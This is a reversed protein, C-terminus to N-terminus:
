TILEDFLQPPPQALRYPSVEDAVHRDSSEQRAAKVGTGNNREHGQLAALPECREGDAEALGVEVLQRVCANDGLTETCVMALQDDLGLAGISQCGDQRLEILWEAVCGCERRVEHRHKGRPLDLDHQRPVAPVFQEGTIVSINNILAAPLEPPQTLAGDCSDNAPQTIRQRLAGGALVEQEVHRERPRVSVQVLDRSKTGPPQRPDQTGANDVARRVADGLTELRQTM